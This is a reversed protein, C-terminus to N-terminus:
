SLYNGHHIEILFAYKQVKVYNLNQWCAYNIIKSMCKNINNHVLPNPIYDYVMDYILIIM